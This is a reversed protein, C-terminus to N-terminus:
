TVEYALLSIGLLPSYFVCGNHTTYRWPSFFFTKSFHAFWLIIINYVIYFLLNATM